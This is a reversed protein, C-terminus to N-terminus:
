LMFYEQLTTGNYFYKGIGNNNNIDEIVVIDACSGGYISLSIDNYKSYYYELSGLWYYWFM